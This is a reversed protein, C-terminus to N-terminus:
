SGTRFNVQGVLITSLSVDSFVEIKGIKKFIDTQSASSGIYVTTGINAMKLVPFADNLTENDGLRIFVESPYFENWSEVEPYVCM